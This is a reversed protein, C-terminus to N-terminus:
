IYSDYQRYEKMREKETMWRGYTYNWHRIDYLKYLASYGFFCLELEPGAHDEGRWSLDIALKLLFYNCYYHQAEFHKNKSIAKDFNYVDLNVDKAWPNKVVISFKLM